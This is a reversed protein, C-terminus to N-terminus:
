AMSPHHIEGLLVACRAGTIHTTDQPRDHWRQHALWAFLLAELHDGSVNLDDSASVQTKPLAQQLKAMVTQNHAGGGCVILRDLPKDTPCTQQLARVVGEVTLQTLSAQVDEPALCAFGSLHNSLWQEGFYEISTSKPPPTKFFPDDLLKSVLDHHSTGQSAWHGGADFRSSPDTDHHQQYWYDLLANAPGTDFGITPKDPMLLTLNGIGGLNLVARTEQQHAFLHRHLLPALPAGQGGADLDAQRFRGITPCLTLDAISQPNALQLSIPPDNHPRHCLTQGHSGIATIASMALGSESVLAIAAEAFAHALLEDLEACLPNQMFGRHDSEVWRKAQDLGDVLRDSFSATHAAEIQPPASPDQANISVVAVDVGDMSTGSILGIYRLTKSTIPM